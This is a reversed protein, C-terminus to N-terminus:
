CKFRSIHLLVVLRNRSRQGIGADLHPAVERIRVSLAHGLTATGSYFTVRCLWIDSIHMEIRLGGEEGRCLARRGTNLTRKHGDSRALM